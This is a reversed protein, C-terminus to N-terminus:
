RGAWDGYGADNNQFRRRKMERNLQGRTEVYCNGDSDYAAGTGHLKAEANETAIREPTAQEPAISMNRNRIPKGRDWPNGYRRPQYHVTERAIIRRGGGESPREVLEDTFWDRVFTM